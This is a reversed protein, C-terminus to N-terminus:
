RDVEPDRLELEALAQKAALQEAVKKARGEAAYTRSGVGVEVVFTKGHDPGREEVVRYTPLGLRQRQAVEQLQTKYDRDVTGAEVRDFATAFLRDVVEFGAELGADVYVAAVVAELADALLSPKDRGGSAEEGKGLQLLAGLDISRAIGSLSAEDVLSARLKSLIGEAADPFREMLRQSIALELVADGLFELRENDPIGANRNENVWSKHTLAQLALSPTSLVRGIRRELAQIPDKM